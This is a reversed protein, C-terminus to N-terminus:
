FRVAENSQGCQPCRSLEVDSDDTYVYSCKHCRFLKDETPEPEFRRRRREYLVGIAAVAGLLLTVYCLILVDISVNLGEGCTPAARHHAM